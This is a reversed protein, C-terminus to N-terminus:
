TVSRVLEDAESRSLGVTDVEVLGPELHARYSLCPHPGPTICTAPVGEVVTFRGVIRGDSIPDSSAWTMIAINRCSADFWLATGVPDGSGGGGWLGLLGFGSPLHSPVHGDLQSLMGAPDISEARMPFLM